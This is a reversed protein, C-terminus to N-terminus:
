RVAPIATLVPFLRVPNDRCLAHEHRGDATSRVLDLIPLPVFPCDSGLVVAALGVTTILRELV